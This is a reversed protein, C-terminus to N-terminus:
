AYFAAFINSIYSHAYLTFVNVCTQNIPWTHSLVVFAPLAAAVCVAVPQSVSVSLALILTHCQFHLPHIHPHPPSPFWLLDHLIFDLSYIWFNICDRLCLFRAAFSHCFSTRIFWVLQAGRRVFTHLLFRKVCYYCLSQQQGHGVCQTYAM